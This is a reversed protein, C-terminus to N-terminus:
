KFIYMLGLIILVIGAGIGGAKYSLYLESKVKKYVAIYLVLIGLLICIIGLVFKGM